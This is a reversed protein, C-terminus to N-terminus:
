YVTQLRSGRWNRLGASGRLHSAGGASIRPRTLCSSFCEARGASTQCIADVTLKVLFRLNGRRTSKGCADSKACGSSAISISERQHHGLILKCYEECHTAHRNVARWPFGILRGTGLTRRSPSLALPDDYRWHWRSCSPQVQENAVDKSSATASM